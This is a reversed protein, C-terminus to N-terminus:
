FRVGVTMVLHSNNDTIKAQPPLATFDNPTYAHFTSERHNFVYALDVSFMKYRYGLGCTLYQNSKDFAYSLNTETEDAGTTYIETRNNAARETVPSSEHSYGARLSWNRDLRYEAGIRFISTSQYYEKVDGNIYTYDNGRNDKTTM